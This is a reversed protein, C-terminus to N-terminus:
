ASALPWFVDFHGIKSQGYRRSKGASKTDSYGIGCLVMPLIRCIERCPEVEPTLGYRAHM